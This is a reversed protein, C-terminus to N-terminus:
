EGPPLVSLLEFERGSKKRQPRHSYIAIESTFTVKAFVEEIKKQDPLRCLLSMGCDSSLERPVPVMETSLDDKLLIDEALM